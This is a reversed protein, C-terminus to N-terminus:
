TLVNTYKSVCMCSIADLPVVYHCTQCEIPTIGADHLSPVHSTLWSNGDTDSSSALAIRAAQQRLRHWRDLSPGIDPPIRISEIARSPVEDDGDAMIQELKERDRAYFHLSGVVHTYSGPPVLLAAALTQHLCSFMELDYPLGLFVDQSRMTVRMHLALPEGRIFFQFGTTCPVDRSHGAEPGSWLTVYAQRTAHDAALVEVARSLPFRARPGYAGRLLGHDAFRSFRGNSAINLQELSSIGGILHVTETAAIAAKPRRTTRLVNVELPNTITFAMNRLEYTPLGRPAVCQGHSMLTHIVDLYAESGDAFDPPQLSSMSQGPLVRSENRSAESSAAM